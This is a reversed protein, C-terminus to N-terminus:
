GMIIKRNVDKKFKNIKDMDPKDPLTTNKVAEQFRREYDHVMDFFEQTPQDNEQLYKGNRVDMLLDHEKERYTVIQHNNLIDLAMMYLRLLHMSHKAIKGHEKAKKNRKSEKNYGNITQNLETLISSLTEAPIKQMNINLMLEETDTNVYPVIDKPEIGYKSSFNDIMGSLVKAIHTNYEEKTMACLSEQQLEYLKQNAYGGFSKACRKTLFIEANDYLKRGIDTMVFYQDPKLGLIELTNPNAETLLRIMKNFSYITTDTAVDVVHEFDNGLLIEDASNLAIGRVDIDSTAINTGYAHSGGLGLVIINNLNPNTRLFDYEAAKLFDSTM